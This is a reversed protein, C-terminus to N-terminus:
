GKQKHMGKQITDTGEVNGCLEMLASHLLFVVNIFLYSLKFLMQFNRQWRKM